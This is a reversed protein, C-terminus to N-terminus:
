RISLTIDMGGQRGERDIINLTIGYTIDLIKADGNTEGLLQRLNPDINGFTGGVTLGMSKPDAALRALRALVAEKIDDKIKDIHPKRAKELADYFATTMLRHSPAGLGPPFDICLRHDLPEAAPLLTPSPATPTIPEKASGNTPLTISAPPMKATWVNITIEPFYSRANAVGSRGAPARGFPGGLLLSEWSKRQAQDMRRPDGGELRGEKLEAVFKRAAQIRDDVVLREDVLISYPGELFLLGKRRARVSTPDALVERRLRRVSVDDIGVILPPAEAKVETKAKAGLPPAQGAVPAAVFALALLLTTMDRSTPPDRRGTLPLKSM